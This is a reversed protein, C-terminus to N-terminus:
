TSSSCIPPFGIKSGAISAARAQKLFRLYAVATAPIDPAEAAQLTHELTAIVRAKLALWQEIRAALETPPRLARVETTEARIVPIVRRLPTVVEGPITVDTPPTIRDLKPGYVSCIKAVRAFYAAKTPAAESNNSLGLVIGAAVGGVVVVVGLGVAIQRWSKM